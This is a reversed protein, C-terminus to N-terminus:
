SKSFRAVITPLVIKLKKPVIGFDSFKDTKRSVLNDKELSKVQALTLFAPVLDGLILRFFDNTGAMVKALPFPIKLILRTRKIEALLMSILEKFTYTEDGGLELYRKKQDTEVLLSVVRAVDDVYVPQFKTEPGVVPIFPSISSLKAFRNFFTDETGFIM